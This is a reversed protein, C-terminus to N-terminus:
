NNIYSCRWLEMAKWVKITDKNEDIYALKLYTNRNCEEICKFM